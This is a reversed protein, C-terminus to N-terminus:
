LKFAIQQLGEIYCGENIMASDNIMKNPLVLM